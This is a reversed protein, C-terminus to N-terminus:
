IEQINTIKGRGGTAQFVAKNIAEHIDDPIKSKKSSSEPAINNVLLILLKSLNIIILLVAFVTIMGVLMLTIGISM